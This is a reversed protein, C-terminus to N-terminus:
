KSELVQELIPTDASQPLQIGLLASLTPAVSTIDVRRYIDKHKLGFGYFILPLQNQNNCQCYCDSSSLLDHSPTELYANPYLVFMVDGSRVPNYSNFALHMIGSPFGSNVLLQTPIAYQVASFQNLFTAANRQIQLLDVRMQDVISQNFYVQFNVIKDVINEQSYLARLYSNLIVKTAQIQFFNVDLDLNRLLSANDCAGRDSTLFVLYNGKGVIDDLASLLHSIDKDLKIYADEEEVSRIGYVQSIYSPAGFYVFLYDTVNDKGVGDYVMSSIAFDKTFTDFYPTYMFMKYKNQVQKSLKALDYPFTTQGAIGRESLSQDPLSEKYQSVDYTTTWKQSLYVDPFDRKNFIKVWQPLQMSSKCYYSSTVWKGTNSDYWYVEDALKGGSLIAEEMTPAIVVVKSKGLNSMKLQDSFSQVFIKKPSGAVELQDTGVVSTERDEVCNVLQAKNKDYWQSGIIGHLNPHTGTALDTLSSATNINLYAYGANHYVVGDRVLRKFGNDSFKDWYRTLFDYRMQGVVIGVILKPRHQCYGSLFAFVLVILTLFKRM